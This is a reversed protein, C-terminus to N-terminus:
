SNVDNAVIGAIQDRYGRGQHVLINFGIFEGSEKLGMWGSWLSQFLRKKVPITQGDMEWPWQSSLCLAFLM